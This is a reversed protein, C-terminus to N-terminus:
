ETAGKAKQKKEWRKFVKDMQKQVDKEFSPKRILRYYASGAWARPRIRWTSGPHEARWKENAMLKDNAKIGSALVWPYRVGNSPNTKDSTVAVMKGNYKMTYKLSRSLARYEKFYKGLGKRTETRLITGMGKLVDRRINNSEYGLDKLYREAEDVEAIINFRVEGAM